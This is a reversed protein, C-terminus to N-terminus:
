NSLNLFSFWNEVFMIPVHACLSSVPSHPVDTLARVVLECEHHRSVAGADTIKFAHLVFSSEIFGHFQFNIIRTHIFVLKESNATM